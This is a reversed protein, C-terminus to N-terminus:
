VHQRGACSINHADAHKEYGHSLEARATHVNIFIVDAHAYSFEGLVHLATQMVRPIDHVDHAALVIITPKEHTNSLTM